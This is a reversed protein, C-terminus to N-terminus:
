KPLLGLYASMWYPLLFDIAAGERWAASACEDLQRPVPRVGQPVACSGSTGVHLGTKFPNAEWLFDSDGARLQLSFPFRTQYSLGGGLPQYTQVTNLWEKAFTESDPIKNTPFGSAASVKPLRELWEGLLSSIEPGVSAAVSSRDQPLEVLIRVLDFYANRHQETAARTLM